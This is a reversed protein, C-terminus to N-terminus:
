ASRARDPTGHLYDVVLPDNSRLLEVGGVAHVRGEALFLVHDAVSAAALPQHTVLLVTAGRERGLSAVLSLMDAALAPGLAAFPEDLLLVPRDRIVARALAARQREGGSLESPLRGGKGSLGVRELTGEAVHRDAGTVRRRPAIGLAVNTAIDLHPFLNHEQFIVTCPREGPDLGAMDRGAMVVRGGQPEEFGAVLALLTSKGSGSPGTVVALAGGPVAADFLMAAGEPYAFRVAEMRVGGAEPGDTM